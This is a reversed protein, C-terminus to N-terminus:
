HNKQQIKYHKLKKHLTGRSIGLMIAAESQNHKVHEMVAKFLPAEIEELVLQYINTAKHGDLHKLYAEIADAVCKNLPPMKKEM